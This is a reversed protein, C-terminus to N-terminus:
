LIAKICKVVTEIEEKKLRPYFPLFILKRSLSETNEFNKIDMEMVRHLPDPFVREIKVGYKSFFNKVDEFPTNTAVIYKTPVIEQNDYRDILYGGSDMVARDYYSVIKKRNEINKQLNKLQAIGLAANLNSMFIDGSSWNEKLGRIFKGSTSENSGLIAGSGTTIVSDDNLAMSTYNGFSGIKEGNISSVFSGGCDEILPVGFSRYVSLNHPIGFLQPIIIGKTQKSILKEITDPSPLISNGAVDALVPKLRNKDLFFLFHKDASAPLIFEDGPEVNMFTFIIDFSQIYSSILALNKIGTEKKLATLFKEMYHNPTLDDDILCNFVSIIDEKTITPMHLKIM